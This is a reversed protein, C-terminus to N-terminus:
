RKTSTTKEDHREAPIRILHRDASHRSIFHNDKLIGYLQIRNEVGLKDFVHTIHTKVTRESICLREAIAANTQGCLIQEIIEVERPTIGAILESRRTGFVQRGVFLYGIRNGASDHLSSAKIDLHGNSSGHNRIDLVVSVSAAAASRSDIWDCLQTGGDFLKDVAVGELSEGAMEFLLSTEKNVCHVTRRNDLIVVVYGPFATLAIEELRPPATLFQFRDVLFGFCLLWLLKFLFVGAQSPVGFLLPVIVVETFTIVMLVVVSAGLIRFIRRERVTASSAARNFYVVPALVYCAFWLVLMSLFAASDYQHNLQWTGDVLTFDSVYDNHLWFLVASVVWPLYILYVFRYRRPTTETVALAFHLFAGFHLLQFLNGVLFLVRFRDLEVTSLAFVAIVAWTGLFISMLLFAQRARSARDRRIVLYGLLFSLFATLAAITVM